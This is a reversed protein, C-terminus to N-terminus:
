KYVELKAPFKLVGDLAKKVFPGAEGENGEPFHIHLQDERRYHWVMDLVLSKEEVKWGAKEAEEVIKECLDDPLGNPVRYMLLDANIFDPKAFNLWVYSPANEDNRVAEGITVALLLGGGEDVGARMRFGGGSIAWCQRGPINSFDPVDRWSSLPITKSPTLPFEFPRVTIKESVTKALPPRIGDERLRRKLYDCMLKEQDAGTVFELTCEAMADKRPDPHWGGSEASRKDMEAYVDKDAPYALRAKFENKEPVFKATLKANLGEGLAVMAEVNGNEDATWYFPCPEERYEAVGIGGKMFRLSLHMSRDWYCWYGIYAKDHMMKRAAEIRAKKEGELRAARQAAGKRASESRLVMWVDTKAAASKRNYANISFAIGDPSTGSWTRNTESCGADLSIGDFGAFHKEMAKFLAPIKSADLDEKRFATVSDVGGDKGVAVRYPTFGHSRRLWVRGDEDGVYANVWEDDNAHSEMNLPLLSDLAIGFMDKPDFRPKGAYACCAAVAAIAFICTKKM